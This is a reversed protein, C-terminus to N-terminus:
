EDGTLPERITVTHGSDLEPDFSVKFDWGGSKNDLVTGILTLGM